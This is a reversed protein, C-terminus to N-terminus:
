VFSSILSLLEAPLACGQWPQPRPNSDRRGSMIITILVALSQYYDFALSILNPDRVTRRLPEFGTEREMKIGCVM